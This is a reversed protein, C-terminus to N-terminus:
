NKNEYTKCRTIDNSEKEMLVYFIFAYFNIQIFKDM